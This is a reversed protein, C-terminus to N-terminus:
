RQLPASPLDPKHLARAVIRRVDGLCCRGQPHTKACRCGSTAKAQLIRELITSRGHAQVDELIDAETYGHCFCITASSAM